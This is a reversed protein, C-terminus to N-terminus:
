RGIVRKLDNLYIGEPLVDEQYPLLEIITGVLLNNSKGVPVIVEEGEELPGSLPDSGRYYYRGDGLQVLVIYQDRPGEDRCDSLAHVLTEIYDLMAAKNQSTNGYAIVESKVEKRLWELYRHADDIARELLWQPNKM